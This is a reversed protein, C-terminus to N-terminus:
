YALVPGYGGPSGSKRDKRLRASIVRVGDGALGGVVRLKGKCQCPRDDPLVLVALFCCGRGVRLPIIRMGEINAACGHRGQRPGTLGHVLALRNRCGRPGM